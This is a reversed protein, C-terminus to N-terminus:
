PTVRSCLFTVLLWGDRVNRAVAGSPGLAEHVVEFPPLTTFDIEDKAPAGPRSASRPVLLDMLALALRDGISNAQTQNGSRLLEYTPRMAEGSRAFQVLFAEHPILQQTTGAVMLFETDATLRASGPDALLVKELLSAHTAAFLYGNSVTFGYHSLDPGYLTEPQKGKEAGNAHLDRFVFVTHPGLLSSTVDPDDKLLRQVAKSVTSEDRTKVAFVVGRTGSQDAAHAPRIVHVPGELQAILERRVDVGPSDPEVLIDRVVQEFLGQQSDGYLEEFLSGYADFAQALDWEVTTWQAVDASLWAPAAAAKLPPFDLMRAAKVFPAPAHLAVYHLTDCPGTTLVVAGGLARLANFGQNRAVKWPGVPDPKGRNRVLVETAFPDLYWRLDAAREGSAALCTEHIYRFSSHQELRDPEQTSWRQVIGRAVAADNAVCFLDQHAFFAWERAPQKARKEEPIQYREIRVEGHTETSHRAGYKSYEQDLRQVVDRVQADRGSTAAILVFSPQGPSGDVLAASVEGSAMTKVDDWTLGMRALPSTPSHRLSDQFEKVFPEMRPDNLLRGLQADNWRELFQPFSDVAVYIRTDAPLLFAAAPAAHCPTSLNALLLPISTALVFKVIIKWM